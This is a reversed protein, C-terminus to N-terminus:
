KGGAHHRRKAGVGAAHAVDEPGGDLALAGRQPFQAGELVPEDAILEVGHGSDGLHGADAAGDLLILDVDVGVAQPRVPNRERGDHVRDHSAIAVDAAVHHLCATRPRHHATKTEDLVYAVHLVDDDAGLIAHRDEHLLHSLYLDAVGETRGRQHLAGLFSHTAHDHGTVTDARHVHDVSHLLLDLRM